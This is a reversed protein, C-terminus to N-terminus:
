KPVKMERILDKLERDTDARQRMTGELMTLAKSLDVKARTESESYKEFWSRQAKNETMLWRLVLLMAGGSSIAGAGASLPDISM